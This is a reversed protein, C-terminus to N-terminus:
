LAEVAIVHRDVEDDLVRHRQGPGPRRGEIVFQPRVPFEPLDAARPIVEVPRGNFLLRQASSVGTIIVLVRMARASKLTMNHPASAKAKLAPTRGAPWSTRLPSAAGCYLTSGNQGFGSGFRQLRCCTVPMWTSWM